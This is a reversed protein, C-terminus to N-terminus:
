IGLEKHFYRLTAYQYIRQFEKKDYKYSIGCIQNVYNDIYEQADNKIYEINDRTEKYEDRDVVADVNDLSEQNKVTAIKSYDLGSKHRKSRKSTKFKYAYKHKIETRYPICIFYGYHSQILLCNYPRDQTRMLEVYKTEPYDEYFKSSLNLVQYDFPDSVCM